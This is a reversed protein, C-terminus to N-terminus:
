GTTAYGLGALDDKGFPQPQETAVAIEVAQGEIASELIGLMVALGHLAFEGSCRHPRGTLIATAMDALGVSRYNALRPEATPWNTGGLPLRSTEFPKWRDRGESLEIVGGFFDPDPVRLSAVKGYLEIPRLGHNWVDWSALFTVEAGSHFSLLANVTTLTEVKFSKGMMPGAATVTRETFGIRGAARVTKVPGLLTTLAAIHYPGLDLVPGAGARYFFDPNPHWHEMGRPLVASVGSVIEGTLGDGMMARSQQVGPGLVTDPASGVRVKAAVAAGLIAMGDALTIALPKETYVHKGAAIAALSVETHAAPVTLNLVLDIDDAAILGDVSMSRLGYRTAKASAAEPRLDACAVMALDRFLKANTLYIDSINGCGILGIALPV